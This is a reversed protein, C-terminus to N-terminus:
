PQGAITTPRYLFADTQTLAVLLDQISYNSKEFATNLQKLSCADATREGRGYFFRFTQRTLCERVEQSDALRASLEIANAVPGNADRTHTIEGRTDIPNGLEDETRLRGLADYNEFVIGIPDIKDHCAACDPNARHEELSQRQPVGASVEPLDLVIDAPPAGITQCLLDTRVRLGRLVISTRTPKDHVTLVGGLGLLGARGPLEVRQFGTGTVGSVGYHRALDANVFSYPATFLQKFDGGENWLVHEIFSKAEQALLGPTASSYGAFTDSDRQMAPLEDLDLWEEFFQYVRKAKPDQLMRRAQEAIEADTSLQGGEAAQFLTPDPMSQWLLYSLRSAMEYSGPRTYTKGAAPPGGFEVRNLFHPSQLLTFALWEIAADFSYDQDAKDYLGEYRQVEESTLPRRYVKRGFDQIFQTACARENGAAPTCPWLSRDSRLTKAVEEAADMYQQAVVSNIQLFRANNRFGLSETESVFKATLQEALAPKGILDAVTNRYEANSLRRIPAEGPDLQKCELGANQRGPDTGPDGVEQTNPQVIEGQCATLAAVAGALILRKM